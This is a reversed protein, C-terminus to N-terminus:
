KKDNPSKSKKIFSVRSILNPKLVSNVSGIIFGDVFSRRRVVTWDLTKRAISVVAVIICLGSLFLFLSEPNFFDMIAGGIFPGLAAGVGNIMIITAVAEMRYDPDVRDGIHALCLAYIPFAMFGASGMLVTFGLTSFTFSYLIAFSLSSLSACIFMIIRRDVKDSIIGIPVLGIAGCCITIGMGFAIAIISYGSEQGAIPVMSFITAYLCGIFPTVFLGLPTKEWLKALSMRKRKLNPSPPDLRVILLMPVTSLSIIISLTLFLFSGEISDALLIFQGSALGIYIIAQYIAMLSGRNKNDAIENIWTEAILFAGSVTFGIIIRALLWVFANPFIAYVLAISSSIATFAAFTRVYGAKIIITPTIKTSLMLGIYYFSMILGIMTPTFGEVSGRLPLLINFLGNAACLIAISFLLTIIRILYTPM